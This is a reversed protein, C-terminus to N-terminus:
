KPPPSPPRAPTPSLDLFPIRASFRPGSDVFTSEDFMTAPAIPERAYSAPMRRDVEEVYAVLTTGPAPTTWDAPMTEKLHWVLEDDTISGQVELAQRADTSALPERHAAGDSSVSERSLWVRMWPRQLREYAQLLGDLGGADKSAAALPGGPGFTESVNLNRIGSSGPGRMAVHLELQGDDGRGTHVDLRRSPLMPAMVTVPESVALEPSISNPQYRVLGFRVFPESPRHSRLDVDIYWQERDLDFCPAYTLLTVPLYGDAPKGETGVKTAPEVDGKTPDRPIPMLAQPIVRPDHVSPPHEPPDPRVEPADVFSTPPIFVADQPRTDRRIPDGGWRTVYAGARGLDKDEFDSIRIMRGDDLRVRNDLHDHVGAEFYRPPWLVIGVREGEGSAFWGRRFYLRVMARRIVSYVIPGCCDDAQRTVMFSPEPRLPECAPPRVTACMWAVFERGNTSQQELSLAQRRRLLREKGGVYMSATEFTEAFRSLARVTLRLKRARTDAIPQPLEVRLLRVESEAVATEAARWPAMRIPAGALAAMQLPQLRVHTLRQDKVEFIPNDADAFLTLDEGRSVCAKPGSDDAVIQGIALTSPLHDVRMVTVQEEDLTVRGSADVKFGLVSQPAVYRRAGDKSISTPWRGTRRSILSRGRTPADIPRGSLAIGRALVEFGDVQELDLEVNGTLLLTTSGRVDGSPADKFTFPQGPRVTAPRRLLVGDLQPPHTPWPIAHCARFQTVAAVEEIPWKGRLTELIDKACLRVRGGDPVLHGGIGTLSQRSPSTYAALDSQGCLKELRAALMADGAARSRQIAITEPLAFLNAFTEDIPLCCVEIDFDEGEHLKLRLLRVPVGIGKPMIGNHADFGVVVAIETDALERISRALGSGPRRKPMAVIEVALPLADPYRNDGDYLDALLDGELYRDSGRVRARVSFHSAAPDPLWGIRGDSKAVSNLPEFVPIGGEKFTQTEGELSTSLYERYYQAGGADVSAFERTVVCPFGNRRQHDTADFGDSRNHAVRRLGGQRVRDADSVDLMGHRVAEEYSCEPAVFVRTTRKPQLRDDLSVYPSRDPARGDAPDARRPGDPLTRVIAQDLQEFGMAKLATTALHRPLMLTPALIADHRLFRRPAAIGPNTNSAGRAVPLMWGSKDAHLPQTPDHTDPSGHGAFVSRLRFAYPVGFRLAAHRLQRTRKKPSGDTVPGSPLDHIRQYPLGEVNHDSAGEAGETFVASPTGDWTFISEDAAVDWPPDAADNLAAAKVADAKGDDEPKPAAPLTPVHRAAVVFSGEDILQGASTRKSGPILSDVARWLDGVRDSSMGPPNFVYRTLRQMLSRWEIKTAPVGPRVAAVDVRRGITLDEAYLILAGMCAAGRQALALERLIQSARGRDVLVFGATTQRQGFDDTPPMANKARHAGATSASVRADMARRADITVVDYRLSETPAAEDVALPRGLRWHGDQQEILPALCHDDRPVEGGIGAEFVSVPWFAVDRLKAATVIASASPARRAGLPELRKAHDADNARQGIWLHLYAPGAQKQLATASFVVDVALCFLRSLVPDDVLAYFQTLASQRRLEDAPTANLARADAPKALSDGKPDITQAMDSRRQLWTGFAHTGAGSTELDAEAKDGTPIPLSLGRFFELTGCTGPLKNLADGIEKFHQAAKSRLDNTADVAENYRDLHTQRLKEALDGASGIAQVPPQTGAEQPALPKIECAKEGRRIKAGVRIARRREENMALDAMKIPLVSGLRPTTGFAPLKVLLAGDYDMKDKASTTDAKPLTATPPAQAACSLSSLLGQRLAEWAPNGNVALSQQWLENVAAWHRVHAIALSKPEVPRAALTDVSEGKAILSAFLHASGEQSSLQELLWAAARGPWEAIDFGADTGHDIPLPSLLITAKFLQEGPTGQPPEALGAAVVRLLPLARFGANTTM